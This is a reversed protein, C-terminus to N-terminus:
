PEESPLRTTIEVWVVQIEGQNALVTRGAEAAFMLKRLGGAGAVRAVILIYVTEGPTVDVVLPGIGDNSCGLQTLAGCAGRWASLIPVTAGYDSGHVSLRLKSVGAPIEIAYWAAHEGSSSCSPILADTPALRTDIEDEYPLSPVATATACTGNTSDPYVRIYAGDSTKIYSGDSTKLLGM